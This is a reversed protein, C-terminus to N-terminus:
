SLRSRWYGQRRALHMVAIVDLYDERVEYIIGYRFRDIRYRRVRKGVRPWRHPAKKIIAFARDVEDIFETGLGAQKSEYYQAADLLEKAADRKLRHIM